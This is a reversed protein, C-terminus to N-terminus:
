REGPANWLQPWHNCRAIGETGAQLLLRGEWALRYGGRRAGGATRPQRGLDLEVKCRPLGSASAYCLPSGLTREPM